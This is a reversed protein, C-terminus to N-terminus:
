PLGGCLDWCFFWFSVAYVCPQRVLSDKIGNGKPKKDAKAPLHKYFDCNHLLLKTDNGTLM